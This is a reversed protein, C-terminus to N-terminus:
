ECTCQTDQEFYWHHCGGKSDLCQECEQISSTAGPCSLKELECSHAVVLIAFALIIGTGIPIVYRTIKNKM